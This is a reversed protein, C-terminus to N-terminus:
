IWAWVMAGVRGSEVWVGRGQMGVREAGDHWCHSETDARTGGSTDMMM